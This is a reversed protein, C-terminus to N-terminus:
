NKGAETFFRQHEDPNPKGVKIEWGGGYTTKRSNRTKEKWHFGGPGVTSLRTTAAM